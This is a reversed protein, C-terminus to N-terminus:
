NLAVRIVRAQFGPHEQFAPRQRTVQAPRPCLCLSDKACGEGPMNLAHIQHGSAPLCHSPQRHRHPLGAESDCSHSCLQHSSCALTHVSAGGILMVFLHALVFVITPDHSPSLMGNASLPRRATKCCRKSLGVRFSKREASTRLQIPPLSRLLCHVGPCHM